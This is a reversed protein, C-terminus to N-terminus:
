FRIGLSVFYTRGPNNSLFDRNTYNLLNNIGAQLDGQVRKYVPFQQTYVFRSIFYSGTSDDTIEGSGSDTSYFIRPSMMRGSLLLSYPTETASLFPLQRRKYVLNVTGTHKSNGSLQRNTAKDVANAFSYGGKLQFDKLFTWQLSVDVGTIQADEVNEYRMETRSLGENWIQNTNIKNKIANDHATISLNLNDAIYEASISKYWSEEPILDANGIVWFPIDEGIKHPFNMYLEKLTPAKYGNSINGRFRFNELRYMLSIKPSLCAGFQSHNTYRVGILAELGTETKFEGQTFLNWNSADKEGPDFGFQNYSFTNELNMEAGGILQIKETVDWADILRFATYKSGNVYDSSDNRLKYIQHGDYTDRNGTFTLANSESFTYQLKGGLTYNEDTRTQYKHLFWTESNYYSGKLEVDLQERKYKFVQSLTYDSYPYMTYRSVSGNEDPKSQATYGDSNKASFVTKSSFRNVKFGFSADGTFSNYDSYRVRASGSVPKDVDKTIVNIVAGIANSGYLVSSAGNIIEIRQIDCTNLRSFNVNETRENVLREGDVLILIYKNDLGAIQINDGMPNPTFNVGPVFDELAELVTTAGSQRIDNGSIVRTLVPTNKLTRATLTGTVVVEDLDYIREGISDGAVKGPNVANQAFSFSFLSTCFVGVLVLTYKTM